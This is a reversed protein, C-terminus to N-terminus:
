LEPPGLSGLAPAYVLGGHGHTGPTTASPRGSFTVNGALKVCEPDIPENLEVKLALDFAGACREFLAQMAALSRDPLQPPPIELGEPCLAAVGGCTGDGEDVCQLLQMLGCAEALLEPHGKHRALISALAGPLPAGSRRRARLINESPVHAPSLMVSSLRVLGLALSAQSHFVESELAPIVDDMFHDGDLGASSWSNIVDVFEPDSWNGSMQLKAAELVAFYNYPDRAFEAEQNELMHLYAQAHRPSRAMPLLKEQMPTSKMEDKQRDGMFAILSYRVGEGRIPEVGHLRSSSHGAVRGQASQRQACVDKEFTKTELTAYPEMLELWRPSTNSGRGEGVLHRALFAQYREPMLHCMYLSGGTHSRGDSIATNFTYRDRDEHAVIKTRGSEVLYRRFFVANCQANEKYGKVHRLYPEFVNICLAKVLNTFPRAMGLPGGEAKWSKQRYARPSKSSYKHDAPLSPDVGFLNFHNEPADDINDKDQTWFGARGRGRHFADWDELLSILKRADEAPFLEFDLVNKPFEALDAPAPVNYGVSVKSGDPRRV